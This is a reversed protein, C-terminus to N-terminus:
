YEATETFNPREKFFTGISHFTYAIVESKPMTINSIIQIKKRKGDV